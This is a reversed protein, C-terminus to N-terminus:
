YSRLRAHQLYEIYELTDETLQDHSDSDQIMTNIQKAQDPTIIQQDLYLATKDPTFLYKRLNGRELDRKM